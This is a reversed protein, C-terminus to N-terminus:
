TSIVPTEAAPAVRQRNCEAVVVAVAVDQPPALSAERREIAEPIRCLFFAAADNRPGQVLKRVIYTHLGIRRRRHYNKARGSPFDAIREREQPRAAATESFEFCPGRTRGQNLWGFGGAGRRSSSLFLHFCGWCARRRVFLSGPRNNKKGLCPWKDAGARAYQMSCVAYAICVRTSIGYM